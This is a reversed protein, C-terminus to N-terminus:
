LLVPTPRMQELVKYVYAGYRTQLLDAMLFDGDNLSSFTVISSSSSGDSVSSYLTGAQDIKYKLYLGNQKINNLGSEITYPTVIVYHTFANFVCFKYAELDKFYSKLPEILYYAQKFSDQYLWFQIPQEAVERQRLFNYCESLKPVQQEFWQLDTNTDKVELDSM